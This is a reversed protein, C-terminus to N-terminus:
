MLGAAKATEMDIVISPQDPEAYPGELAIIRWPPFCQVPVEDHSVIFVWGNGKLSIGKVNFVNAPSKEDAADSVNYIFIHDEDGMKIEPNIALM